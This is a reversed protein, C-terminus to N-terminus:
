IAGAADSAQDRTYPTLRQRQLLQPACTRVLGVLLALLGGDVDSLLVLVRGCRMCIALIRGTRVSPTAHDTQINTQLDRGLIVSLSISGDNQIRVRPPGFFM